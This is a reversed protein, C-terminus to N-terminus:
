LNKSFLRTYPPQWQLEPLRVMKQYRAKRSTFIFIMNKLFDEGLSEAEKMTRIYSLGTVASEKMVDGLKGTLQISGNGPMLNVEIDLTVGGVATWALGRVSGVKDALDHSDEM